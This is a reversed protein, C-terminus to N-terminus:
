HITARVCWQHACHHHGLHPRTNLCLWVVAFSFLYAYTSRNSRCAVAGDFQYPHHQNSVICAHSPMVAARQLLQQLVAPAQMERAHAFMREYHLCNSNCHFAHACSCCRSHSVCRVRLDGAYPPWRGCGHRTVGNNVQHLPNFVNM